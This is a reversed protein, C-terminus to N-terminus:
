SGLIQAPSQFGASVDFELIYGLAVLRGIGNVVKGTAINDVRSLTFIASSVYGKATLAQNVQALVFQEISRADKEIITGNANLRVNANIYTQITTHLVDCFIDTVARYPMLQFDSGAPAM